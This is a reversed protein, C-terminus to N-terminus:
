IWSTSVHVVSVGHHQPDVLVGQSELQDCKAQLIDSCRKNYQPSFVKTPPPKNSFAFEAYFTGAKQNYGSKLDNNVVTHFQRHLAVLRAHQQESIISANISISSILEETKTPVESLPGPPGQLTWQSKSPLMHSNDAPDKPNACSSSNLDTISAVNVAHPRFNSYKKVLLPRDSFNKYMAFGNLVECVQPVWQTNDYSLPFSPSISLYGCQQVNNPLPICLDDGPYTVSNFPLSIAHSDCHNPRSSNEMRYGISPLTESPPRFLPVHVSNAQKILFKGHLLITGEKINTIIDNDAHFTTGGFCEAQLNEMVLARLRLQINGLSVLFDVEGISKMRTKMDALLALQNNPLIPLKLRQVSDKRLYSVTAGSDLTVNLKKENYNVTIIQNPISM